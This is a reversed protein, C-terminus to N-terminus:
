KALNVTTTITYTDPMLMKPFYTEIFFDVHGNIDEASNDPVIIGKDIASEGNVEINKVLTNTTSPDGWYGLMVKVEVVVATPFQLKIADFTTKTVGDGPHWDRNVIGDYDFWQDDDMDNDQWSVAVKDQIGDGTTDLALVFYPSKTGTPETLMYDFSLSTIGNLTTTGKTVVRDQVQNPESASPLGLQFIPTTIIGDCDNPEGDPEGTECITDLTVVGM